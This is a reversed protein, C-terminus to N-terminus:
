RLVISLIADEKNILDLAAQSPRDRLHIRAVAATNGEFILNEMTGVSIGDSKLTMLVRALVGVKDLHRVVLTIPTEPVQSLNVCNVIQGSDRFTEVIRCIEEGVAEQAQATSAGIHHTGYVRPHLALPHSWHGEKVAPEGSFVDLGAWLTQQDLRNLLAEEDVVDFRSTNIFLSGPALSELLTADVLGRTEETAALHVSLVYSQAAVESPSDAYRIKHASAKERTLSRSWAVVDMGMALGLRAVELGIRGLGLLGLTRGHLGRGGSFLKKNWHERKLELANDVIKRDLGLALGMTLEAVAIANKGPCNAVCIGLSSCAKLDITNVGAGGRVVLALAGGVRLHSSKVQTSRVVLVEPDVRDIAQELTAAKVDPENFVEFGGRQLREISLKPIKDALLIRM